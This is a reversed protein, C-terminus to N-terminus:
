DPYTVARWFEGVGRIRRMSGAHGVCEGFGFPGADHGGNTGASVFGGFEGEDREEASRAEFAPATMRVDGATWIKDKALLAEGDEHVAAEPVPAGFVTAHRGGVLFVPEFFDLAVDFAIAGCFFQQALFAPGDEADPFVLQLGVRVGHHFANKADNRFGRWLFALPRGCM